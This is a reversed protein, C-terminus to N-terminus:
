SYRFIEKKSYKGHSWQYYEEELLEWLNEDEIDDDDDFDDDDDSSSFKNFLSKVANSVILVNATFEVAKFLTKAKM